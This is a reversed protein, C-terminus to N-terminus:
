CEVDRLGNLTISRTSRVQENLTVEAPKVECIQGSTQWASAGQVARELRAPRGPFNAKLSHLFSPPPDCNKKVGQPSRERHQKIDERISSLCASLTNWLLRFPARVLVLSYRAKTAHCLELM